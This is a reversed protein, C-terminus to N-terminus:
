NTAVSNDIRGFHPYMVIWPKYEINVMLDDPLDGLRVTNLRGAQYDCTKDDWCAGGPELSVTLDTAGENYQVFFKYPSGNACTYDNGDNAVDTLNVVQWTGTIPRQVAPLESQCEES